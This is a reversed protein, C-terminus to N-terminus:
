LTFLRLVLGTGVPILINDDVGFGSAIEMVTATFAAVFCIGIGVEQVGMCFWTVVFCTTFCALCGGFSKYSGTSTEIRPGGLHIGVVAAIATIFTSDTRCILHYLLPLFPYKRDGFSLCLLCTRVINIPLCVVIIATGLVFYFAGPLVQTSKERERLLPGFHKMYWEQVAKSKSRLKHMTYFAVTAVILLLSATMQPLLFSLMYFLLGTIAHQIRRRTHTSTNSLDDDKKVNNRLAQNSDSSTSGAVFQLLIALIFAIAALALSCAWSPAVLGTTNIETM